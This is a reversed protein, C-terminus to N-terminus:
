MTPKFIMAWVTSLLVLFNVTNWVMLRRRLLGVVLADANDNASLEKLARATRGILLAGTLGSALLACFGWIVWVPTIWGLLGMMVLGAILTLGAAPGFISRGIFESASSLAESVKVSPERALRLNLVTLTLLGGIWVIVGIIHLFLFTNYVM